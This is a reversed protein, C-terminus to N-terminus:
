YGIPPPLTYKVFMIYSSEVRHVKCKVCGQRPDEGSLGEHYHHPPDQGRGVEVCRSGQRCGACRRAPRYDANM